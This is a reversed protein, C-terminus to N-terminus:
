VESWEDTHLPSAAALASPAAIYAYARAGGALEIERREYATNEFSDLADFATRPVRFLEGRIARSGGEALVAYGNLELLRFAAATRVGRLFVAEGLQAHHRAGRKLSGYVFLLATM